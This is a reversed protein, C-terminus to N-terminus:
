RRSATASSRSCNADTRSGRPRPARKAARRVAGHRRIIALSQKTIKRVLQKLKKFANAWQQVEPALEVPVYVTQTKGGAKFTLQWTPAKRGRRRVKSLTGEVLIGIGGLQRVYADRLRQHRGKGDKAAKM